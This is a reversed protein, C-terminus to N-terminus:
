EDFGSLWSPNDEDPPLITALYDDVEIDFKSTILGVHIGVSTRLDGLALSFPDAEYQLHQHMLFNVANPGALDVIALSCGDIKWFILWGVRSM